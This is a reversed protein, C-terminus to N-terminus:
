TIIRDFGFVSEKEQQEGGISTNEGNSATRPCYELINTFFKARRKREKKKKQTHLSFIVMKSLKEDGDGEDKGRSKLAAHNRLMELM